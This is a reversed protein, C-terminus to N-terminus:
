RSASRAAAMSLPGGIGSVWLPIVLAMGAILGIPLGVVALMM